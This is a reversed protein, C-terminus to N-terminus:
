AVSVAVLHDSPAVAMRAPTLSTFIGAVLDWWWGLLLLFVWWLRDDDGRGGQSGVPLLPQPVSGSVVRAHVLFERRRLKDVFRTESTGM